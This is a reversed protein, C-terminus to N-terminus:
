IEEVCETDEVAEIKVFDEKNHLSVVGTLKNIVEVQGGRYSCITFPDTYNNLTHTVSSGSIDPYNM